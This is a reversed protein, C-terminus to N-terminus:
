LRYNKKASSFVVPNISFNGRSLLSTFFKANGFVYQPSKQSISKFYNECSGLFFNVFLLFDYVFILAVELFEAVPVM